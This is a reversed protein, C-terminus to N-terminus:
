KITIVILTADDINKRINILQSFLVNAIIKEDDFSVNELISLADKDNDDIMGDSALVIVDKEKLIFSTPNVTVSDLIGIPLSYNNVQTVHHNRIIYSSIAGLKYFSAVKSTKNIALLDLTCYSDYTNKLQIIDNTINISNKVAMKTKLMSFITDLTFKSEENAELGNGMGDSLAIYFQTNNDLHMYCDGCAKIDEKSQKIAFNVKIKNVEEINIILYSFSLTAVDIKNIKMSCDLLSNILPLVIDYIQKRNINKIAIDFMLKNENSVNKVFLVDFNHNNLEEKLDKYFNNILDLKDNNFTKICQDIVKSFSYFDSSVIEKTKSINDKKYNLLLYSNTFKDLLKFYTEQKICNEKIYNIKNEDLNNTLTDKIYNLLIHKNNKYCYKNKICDKCLSDFVDEKTKQLLRNIYSKQFNNSISLFMNEFNLLQYNIEKKNNLYQQYYLNKNNIINNNEIFMTIIMLILGILLYQINLNKSVIFIYFLFCTFVLLSNLFKYKTKNLSIVFTLLVSIFLNNLILDINLLYSLLIVSSILSLSYLLKHRISFITLILFIFFLTMYLTINNKLINNFNTLYLIVLLNTIIMYNDDNYCNLYFSYKKLLFSFLLSIISSIFLIYVFDLILFQNNPLLYILYTTLISLLTSIFYNVILKKNFLLLLHYILFYICLAISLYIISIYNNTLKFSLLSGFLLGLLSCLFSNIGNFMFFALLPICYIINLDIINSFVSVFSLFVVIIYKIINKM